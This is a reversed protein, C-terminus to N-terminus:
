MKRNSEDACELFYEHCLMATLMLFVAYEQFDLEEDRNADLKEMLKQFGAEHIRGRVFTPLENLLLERMEAKSLKYRDGEKGSYKQFTGVMVGLAEELRSAM